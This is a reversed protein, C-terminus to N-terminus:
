DHTFRLGCLPRSLLAPPTACCEAAAPCEGKEMSVISVLESRRFSDDGFTVSLCESLGAPSLADFARSVSM